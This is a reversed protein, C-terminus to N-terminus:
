RLLFAQHKQRLHTTSLKTISFFIYFSIFFTSLDITPTCSLSFYLSYSPPASPPGDAHLCLLSTSIPALSSFYFLFLFFITLTSFSKTCSRIWNRSSLIYIFFYIFYIHTLSFSYLIPYILHKLACVWYWRVFSESLDSPEVRLPQFISKWDRWLLAIYVYQYLYM